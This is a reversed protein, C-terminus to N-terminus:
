EDGRVQGVWSVWYLEGCVLSMSKPDLPLAFEVLHVPCPSANGVSWLVVSSARWQALIAALSSACVSVIRIIFWLSQVGCCIGSMFGSMCMRAM